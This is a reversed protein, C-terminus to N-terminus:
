WQLPSRETYKVWSPLSVSDLGALDRGVRQGHFLKGSFGPLKSMQHLKVVINSNIRDRYAHRRSLEQALDGDVLRTKEIVRVFDVHEDVMSTFLRSSEVNCWRIEKRARKVNFYAAMAKRNTHQAWPLRRIDQRADRLLDFESLTAMEMLEHWTLKPHPPNLRAAVRNYESLAKRIAEARAKLAKGIKERMKYGIGSMGLKTLEFLRQVVLRELNDLVRRYKRENLESVAM